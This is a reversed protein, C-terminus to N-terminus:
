PRSVDRENSNWQFQIPDTDTLNAVRCGPVCCLMFHIVSGSNFFAGLQRLGASLQAYHKEITDVTDALHHRALNFVVAQDNKDKADAM